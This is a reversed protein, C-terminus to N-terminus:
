DNQNKPMPRPSQVVPWRRFLCSWDDDRIAARIDLMLRQYVRLNHLTLLIPGLMEDALFLHRLYARSFHPSHGTGLSCYGTGRPFTPGSRSAQRGQESLVPCEDSIAGGCALCDCGEELPRPDDKFCANRLRLCGQRTFAYANRGNRTPLVCDFMDVGARVANVIDHPYGVGMLYRPKDGPLLPATHEVVRKIQEPGEGVAVGGIAVGPLDHECVRQACWTRQDLDIGGQVIPFLTQTEHRGSAHHYKVCRELWRLTRENALKVRDTYGPLEAGSAPPCDDFAMMIDSGLQHQVQMSREPTLEILSGDHHSRFSVGDDNIRNLEALSFVQFGGSDTLIPRQWNMFRHLGGMRQVLESGPRLMLHYTNGLLIQAGTQEVMPPLLGKVTAQTGVPMFAPTDFSGNLTVVRGLRARSTADHHLLEYILAAM